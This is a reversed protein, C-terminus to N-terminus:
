PGKAPFNWSHVRVSIAPRAQSARAVETNTAAGRRGSRQASPPPLSRAIQPESGRHRPTSAVRQPDHEGMFLFDPVGGSGTRISSLSRASLGGRPGRGQLTERRTERGPGSGGGLTSEM